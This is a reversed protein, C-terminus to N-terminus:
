VRYKALFAISKIGRGAWFVLLFGGVLAIPGVLMITGWPISAPDTVGGVLKDDLKDLVADAIAIFLWPLLQAVILAPVGWRWFQAHAGLPTGDSFRRQFIKQAKGLFISMSAIVVALNLVLFLIVGFLMVFVLTSSAGKVFQLYIIGLSFHSILADLAPGVVRGLTAGALLTLVVLVGITCITALLEGGVRRLARAVVGRGVGAEGSSAATIPLKVIELLTPKIALVFLVMTVLLLVTPLLAFVVDLKKFASAISVFVDADKVLKKGNELLVLAPQEGGDNLHELTPAFLEKGMVLYDEAHTDLTDFFASAIRLQPNTASGLEGQVTKFGLVVGGFLNVTVFFTVAALLSYKFLIRGRGPYRERLVLPLALLLMGALSFWGILATIKGMRAESTREMKAQMRALVKERALKVMARLQEASLSPALEQDAPRAELPAEAVDDPMGAFASKYTDSDPPADVDATDDDPDARASRPAIAIVAFAFLFGLYRM